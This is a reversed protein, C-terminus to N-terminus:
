PLVRIYPRGLWWLYDSIKFLTAFIAEFNDYKIVGWELWSCKQLFNRDRRCLQSLKRNSWVSSIVELQIFNFTSPFSQRIYNANSLKRMFKARAMTPELLFQSSGSNSQSTYLQLPELWFKIPNHLITNARSLPKLRNIQVHMQVISLCDPAMIFNYKIM